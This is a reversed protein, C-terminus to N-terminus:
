PAMEHSNKIREFLQQRERKFQRYQEVLLIRLYNGFVLVALVLWLALATPETADIVALPILSALWFVGYILITGFFLHLPDRVVAREYSRYWGRNTAFWKRLLWKVFTWCNRM